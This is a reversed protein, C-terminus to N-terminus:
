KVFLYAVIFGLLAGAIVEVPTHGLLEKLSIDDIKHAHRLQRVIQNIARAHKGAAQRVGTADYMVVGAFVVSMAFFSSQVGETLAVATALNVVLASHSSPMGGAGLLREVSFEQLIYYSIATKIVQALLWAIMTSMLITNHGISSIFENM